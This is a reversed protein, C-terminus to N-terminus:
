WKLNNGAFDVSSHRYGIRSIVEVLLCDEFNGRNDNEVTALSCHSREHILSLLYLVVVSNNRRVTLGNGLFNVEVIDLTHLGAVELKATNHYVLCPSPIKRDLLNSVTGVGGIHEYAEASLGAM